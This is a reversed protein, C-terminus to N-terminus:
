LVNRQRPHLFPLGVESAGPDVRALVNAAVRVAYTFMADMFALFPPALNDPKTVTALDV